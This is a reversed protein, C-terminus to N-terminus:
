KNMEGIATRIKHQHHTTTPSYKVDPMFWKGDLRWAIPTAYSYVAYEPNMAVIAEALNRPLRGVGGYFREGRLNGTTTTFPEPEGVLVDLYERWSAHIRLKKM